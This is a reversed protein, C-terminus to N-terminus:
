SPFVNYNYSIATFNNLLFQGGPKVGVGLGASFVVIICRYQAAHTQPFLSM